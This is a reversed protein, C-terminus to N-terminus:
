RMGEGNYVWSDIGFGQRASVSYYICAYIHVAYLLYGSM